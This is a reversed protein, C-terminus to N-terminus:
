SIRTLYSSIILDAGGNSVSNQANMGFIRLVIASNNINSGSCNKWCWTENYGTGATIGCISSAPGLIATYSSGANYGVNYKYSVASWAGQDVWAALEVILNDYQGNICFLALASNNTLTLGKAVWEQWGGSCRANSIRGGTALLNGSCSIRMRETPGDTTYFVHNSTGAALYNLGCGGYIGNLNYASGLRVYGCNGEPTYLELNGGSTYIAYQTSSNAVQLKGSPASCNIGVNGGSTIRMREIVTGACLGTSFAMAGGSSVDNIGAIKGMTFCLGINTGTLEIAPSTTGYGTSDQVGFRAVTTTAGGAVCCNAHFISLPTATGIGVKGDGLITLRTTCQTGLNLDYGGGSGITTILMSGDIDSYQIKGYNTGTIGFFINTCRSAGANLKIDGSQVELKNTPNNLGIGVNGFVTQSGTINVSGTFTQRSNLDCGFNNSGSSYIISSTVQQVNLTQAIIQGTVTLSGTISQTARFSNSGTTAYVSIVNLLSASIQQQSSSIQQQSSSVANFSATLTLFSSSLQQQSASVQLLSASIQQQSSSVTLLSSTTAFGVSGTSNLLASDLSFSASLANSGSIVGTTTIAGSSSVQMLTTSGSVFAINGNNDYQIVNTLGSASRNKGM